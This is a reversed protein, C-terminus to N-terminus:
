NQKYKNIFDQYIDQYNERFFSTGPLHIGWLILYSYMKSRELDNNLLKIINPISIKIKKKKSGNEVLLWNHAAFPFYIKKDFLVYDKADRDLLQVKYEKDFCLSAGSFRQKEILQNIKKITQLNKFLVFIVIILELFYGILFIYLIFYFAWKLTTGDKLYVSFLAISVSTCVISVLSNVIFIILLKNLKNVEKNLDEWGNKFLTNIEVKIKKLDLEQLKKNLQFLIWQFHMNKVYKFWFLNEAPFISLISLLVLTIQLEISM